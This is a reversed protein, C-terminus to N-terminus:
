SGAAEARLRGSEDAGIQEGPAIHLFRDRDEWDGALLRHLFDPDCAPERHRWGLHRACNRCYARAEPADIVSVYAACDHHAFMGRDAEVLDDIMEPDDAFREAYLGRLYAERDPGPVRRERVWGPSYFYSGPDARLLADHREVGGLLISICDHAQPLILPVRGARVGILGNGCRGYALAITEVAGGAETEEIAAQLRARLVDPQDHLGMELFRCSSWPPPGDASFADIEAQFVDCAILAYSTAPNM